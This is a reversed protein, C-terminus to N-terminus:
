EPQNKLISYDRKFHNFNANLDQIKIIHAMKEILDPPFEHIDNLHIKKENPIKRYFNEFKEKFLDTDYDEKQKMEELLENIDKLNGNLGNLKYNHYIEKVLIFNFEKLKNYEEKIKNEYNEDYNDSLLMSYKMLNIGRHHTAAKIGNYIIRIHEQIIPIETKNNTKVEESILASSISSELVSMPILIINFYHSNKGLIDELNQFEFYWSSLAEEAKIIFKEIKIKLDAVDLKGVDKSYVFTATIEALDKWLEHTINICDLQREKKEEIRKENIKFIQDILLLVIPLILSITLIQFARSSFYGLLQAALSLQPNILIYSILLVANLVVLTISLILLINKLSFFNKLKYSIYQWDNM